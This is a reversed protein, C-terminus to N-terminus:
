FKWRKKLVVPHDKAEDSLGPSGFDLEDGFALKKKRLWMSASGKKGFTFLEGDLFNHSELQPCRFIVVTELSNLSSLGELLLLESCHSIELKKLGVLDKSLKVSKTKQLYEIKLTQLSHLNATELFQACSYVSLELLAPFKPVNRLLPCNNIHLSQLVPFDRNGIKVWEVLEYMECITLQELSPYRISNGPNYESDSLNMKQICYMKQISLFKLSPLRGLDPLSECSHCNDFIISVLKSFQTGEVWIPFSKGPYDRIIIEKLNDAPYLNELVEEAIETSRDGLFTKGDSWHLFLTEINEKSRMHSEMADIGSRVNILGSIELYGKLHEMGKLEKIGCHLLPDIGINFTALGRLNTLKGIGHPMSIFGVEKTVDLHRLNTLAEITRPLEELYHCDKAELTQLNTLNSIELPIRKINTGSLSLYRLHKLSGFTEPLEEIDTNNLNLTVLNHFKVFFDDLEVLNLICSSIHDRFASRNVVLFTQLNEVRTILQNLSVSCFEHPLFSLHCISKPARTVCGEFQFCENKSLQQALDHILGPMVFKDEKTDSTLSPQFFSQSLFQDFYELGIDEMDIGEDPEIFGQSLWMHVLHKKSFIYDKPFLSCYKFCQKLPSPLYEYCVRLAPLIDSEVENIEWYKSDLVVRWWNDTISHRLLGSLVKICLVVNKCKAVLFKGIDALETYADPNRGTFVCQRFIMLCWEDSLNNMYYFQMPGKVEAVAKRTTSVVVASKEKCVEFLASLLDWCKQGTIEFNDLLLLLRQDMLEEKVIEELVKEDAIDCPIGTLSEIIVRMLREEDFKEPMSIFKRKDFASCMENYLLHLLTTRGTGRDAVISVFTCSVNTRNESSLLEIIRNIDDARGYIFSGGVEFTKQFSRMESIM